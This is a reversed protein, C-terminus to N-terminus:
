IFPASVERPLIWRPWLLLLLLHSPIAMVHYTFISFCNVIFPNRESLEDHPTSSRKLERGLDHIPTSLQHNFPRQLSLSPSASVCLATHWNQRPQNEFDHTSDSNNSSMGVILDGLDRATENECSETARRDGAVEMLNRSIRNAMSEFNAFILSIWTRIDENRNTLFYRAYGV